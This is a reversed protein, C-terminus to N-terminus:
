ENHYKEGRMISLARYLQELFLTRILHHPFTMKSISFLMDARSKVEESVGFAGGILFVINSQHNMWSELEKSFAVSSFPSGHEDLLVLFDHTNVRKLIAEAEQAKCLEAKTESKSAPLDIYQFSIYKKIRKLYEQESAKFYSERTKGVVLLRVAM